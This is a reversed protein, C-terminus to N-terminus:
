AIILSLLGAPPARAAATAPAGLPVADAAAPSPAALVTAITVYALTTALATQYRQQHHAHGDDARVLSAVGTDALAAGSPQRAAPALDALGVAALLEADGHLHVHGGGAHSHLVIPARPTLLSCSLLAAALTRSAGRRIRWKDARRLPTSTSEAANSADPPM